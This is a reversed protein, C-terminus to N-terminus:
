LNAPDLLAWALDIHKTTLWLILVSKKLLKGSDRIRLLNFM